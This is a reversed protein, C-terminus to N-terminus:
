LSASSSFFRSLLSNTGVAPCANRHCFFGDLKSQTKLWLEMDKNVVRTRVPTRRVIFVWRRGPRSDKCQVEVTDEIDRLQDGRQQLVSRRGAIRGPNDVDPANISQANRRELRKRVTSALRTQVVQATNQCVVQTFSVYREHARKDKARHDNSVTRTSCNWSAPKHGM